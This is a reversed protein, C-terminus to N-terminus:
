WGCPFNTAAQRIHKKHMMVSTVGHTKVHTWVARQLFLQGYSLQTNEMQM